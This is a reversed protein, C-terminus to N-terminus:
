FTHNKSVLHHHKFENGCGDSRTYFEAWLGVGNIFKIFKM